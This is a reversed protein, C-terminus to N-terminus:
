QKSLACPPCLLQAMVRLPPLVLSDDSGRHFEFQRQFLCVCVAETGCVSGGYVAASGRYDAATGGYAAAGGAHM